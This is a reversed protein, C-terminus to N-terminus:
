RKRGDVDLNALYDREKLNGLNIERRVNGTRLTENEGAEREKV